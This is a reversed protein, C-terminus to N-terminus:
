VFPVKARGALFWIGIASHLDWIMRKWGVGRHIVLSHRWRSLGPWWIVLGTLAVLLTIMAGIGNLLGATRPDQEVWGPQPYIQAHERQAVQVIAGHADFVIFRTSTTGQDIAGIYGGAAM